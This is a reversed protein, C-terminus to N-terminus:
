RHKRCSGAVTVTRRHGHRRVTRHRAPRVVVAKARRSTAARQLADSATVAVRLKTCTPVGRLVVSTRRGAAPQYVAGLVRDGSAIRYAVPTGTRPASWSLELRGAGATAKPTGPAGVPAPPDPFVHVHLVTRAARGSEDAVTLQVEGDFPASWMHEVVPTATTATTGDGFTWTFTLDEGEPSASGAASLRMPVGVFGAPVEAAAADDARASTRTTRPVAAVPAGAGRRLTEVIQGAVDDGTDARGAYGATASSLAAFASAAEDDDEVLLTSISVGALNAQRVVDAFTTGTIPEPDKPPADGVLVLVRAAGPRWQVRLGQGVGAFVSEPTDGGGDATLGDLGSQFAAPDATLGTVLRAQFDDEDDRYETLAAQFSTAQAALQARIAALNERVSDISDDMSGTTDIVFSVDLPLLSPQATATAVGRKVLRKALWTAAIATLDGAYSTHADVSFGEPRYEVLGFPGVVVRTGALGQCVPDLAHCFSLVPLGAPFEPRQGALGGRSANFDGFAARSTPNFRPDGFLAVGAIRDRLSSPLSPLLDALAHAGQSYGVLVFTSGACAALRTLVTRLNAKGADRSDVYGGTAWEWTYGVSRDEKAVLPVPVAPYPLDMTAVNGWAADGLRGALKALLDTVPGSSPAWPAVRADIQTPGPAGSGRLSVIEVPRCPSIGGAGKAAAHAPDAAVAGAGAALAGALLLPTLARRVAASASVAADYPFSGTEASRSV